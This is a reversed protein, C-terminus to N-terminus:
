SSFQNGTINYAFYIYSILRVNTGSVLRRQCSEEDGNISADIASKNQRVSM